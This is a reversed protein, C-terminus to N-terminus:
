KKFGISQLKILDSNTFINDKIKQSIAQRTVGLCEALNQQSLKNRHMWIILKESTKIVEM